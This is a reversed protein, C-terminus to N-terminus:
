LTQWQKILDRGDSELRTHVDAEQRENYCVVVKEQIKNIKECM